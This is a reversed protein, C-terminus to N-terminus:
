KNRTYTVELVKGEKGNRTKYLEYKITNADVIETVTRLKGPRGSLSDTFRGNAKLIKHASDAQGETTLVDTSASDIWIAEYKQATNDYGVLGIGEIPSGRFDGKYSQKLYRGGLVMENHSTGKSETPQADATIWYKVSATFDGAMAELMKHNEGPAAAKAWVAAMEEPSLKKGAASAAVACLPILALAVLKARISIM